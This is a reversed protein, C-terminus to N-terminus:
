KNFLNLIYDKSIIAITGIIVILRLRDIKFALNSLRNEINCISKQYEREIKLTDKENLDIM